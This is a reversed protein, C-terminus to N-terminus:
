DTRKAFRRIAKQLEHCQVCIRDGDSDEEWQSDPDDVKGCHACVNSPLIPKGRFYTARHLAQETIM